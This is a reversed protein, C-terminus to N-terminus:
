IYQNKCLWGVSDAAHMNEITFTAEPARSAIRDLISIMDIGGKGLPLHADQDGNNDHIHVHALYPAFADIWRELPIAPHRSFAHGIDLCLQLRRDGVGEAIEPLLGPSLEMVNELCITVDEPVDHMFSKWFQISEPIFWQPFYIQPIFGSHIVIKRIGYSLALDISQRYRKETM